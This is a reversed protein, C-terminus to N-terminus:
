IKTLEWKGSGSSASGRGWGGKLKGGTGVAWRGHGSGGPETWAFKVFPAVSKTPGDINFVLQGDISGDVLNGSTGTFAYKGGVVLTEDTILKFKSFPTPTSGTDYYGTFDGSVRERWTTKDAAPLHKDFLTYPNDAEASLSGYGVKGRSSPLTKGAQKAVMDVFTTCNQDYLKYKPPAKCWTQAFGLAKDYEAKKLDFRIKMDVCRSHTSDPHAACGPAETTMFGDISRTKNHYHGYSYRDGNSEEFEVFAHGVDDGGTVDTATPVDLDLNATLSWNKSEDTSPAARNDPKDCAGGAACTWGGCHHPETSPEDDKTSRQVRALAPSANQQVVHALEHALLSLGAATGPAYRGAAFVLHHGVTYAHASVDRASAASAADRHVRVRSFDHAFRPEFFARASSALPEGGRSLTRDVSAPVEGARANVSPGRRTLRPTVSRSLAGDVTGMRMVQDAARDAEHELPDNSAGISLRAQLGLADRRKCAECEGDAASATNGCACKRQLFPASTPRPAAQAMKM